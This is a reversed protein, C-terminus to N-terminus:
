CIAENREVMTPNVSKEVKRERKICQKIFFICFVHTDFNNNPIITLVNERKKMCNTLPITDHSPTDVSVMLTCVTYKLGLMARRILKVSTFDCMLYIRRKL